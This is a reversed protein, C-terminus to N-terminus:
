RDEPASQDTEYTIGISPNNLAKVAREAFQNDNDGELAKETSTMIGFLHIMRDKWSPPQTQLYLRSISEKVVELTIPNKITALHSRLNLIAEKFNLDTLACVAYSIGEHNTEYTLYAFAGQADKTIMWKAYRVQM